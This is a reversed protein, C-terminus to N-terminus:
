LSDIIGQLDDATFIYQERCYHCDVVAQGEDELLQQLEEKGLSILADQTRERSCNCRFKVPYRSIFEPSAETLLDALIVQPKQGDDLLSGLPPLEQLRERIHDMTSPEYPPLPQVLLGGAVIPVGEEDLSVYTAIYTPMQESQEYYFMLDGDIDSTELHVTGESLEPLLLDKVVTLVGARGIASVIDQKGEVLPLDVTPDGVYGRVSGNSDAEVLIRDLPGNAQWRLAARQQVKLLAGQLAAATLAKGLVYTATPATEHRQQAERVVDTTICAYGRVGLPKSLALVMNDNM